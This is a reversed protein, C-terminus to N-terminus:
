VPEDLAEIPTARKIAEAIIQNAREYGDSRDNMVVYDPEDFLTDSAKSLYDATTIYADTQDSKTQMLLAGDLCCRSIRTYEDFWLGTFNKVQLVGSEDLVQFHNHRCWRAPDSLQKQMGELICRITSRDTM